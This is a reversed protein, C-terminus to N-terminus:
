ELIEIASDIENFVDNSTEINSFESEPITDIGSDSSRTTTESSLTLYLFIGLILLVVIIIAIIWSKKM